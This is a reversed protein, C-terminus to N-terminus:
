MGAQWPPAQGIIDVGLNTMEFRKSLAAKIEQIEKKNPGAILLDGLDSSLPSFGHEKLLTALTHYWIRPSQKLGYLAKNLPCVSETGDDLEHPQEVYIELRFLVIKSGVGPKRKRRGSMRRGALKISYTLNIIYAERLISYAIRITETNAM